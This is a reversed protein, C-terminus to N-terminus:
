RYQLILVSYIKGSFRPIIYPGCLVISLKISLYHRHSVGPTFLFTHDALVNRYCEEILTFYQERPKVSVNREESFKDIM